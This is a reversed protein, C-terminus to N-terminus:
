DEILAVAEIEILADKPLRSVEVCSRAPPYEKFYEGYADNFQSFMNLDKIFVTTKVVHELCSGSEKLLNKLNDLIRKTQMKIDSKELEGTEPNIPLQGSTYIFGGAIVAQSYPGIAAPISKVNVTEKHHVSQCM